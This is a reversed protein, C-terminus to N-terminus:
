KVKEEYKIIELDFRSIYFMHVAKMTKYVLYVYLGRDERKIIKYNLLNKAKLYNEAKEQVKDLSPLETQIKGKSLEKWLKELLQFLIQASIQSLINIVILLLVENPALKKSKPIIHIKIGSFEEEIKKSLERIFKQQEADKALVM